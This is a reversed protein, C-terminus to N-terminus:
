RLSFIWILNSLHCYSQSASICTDRSNMCRLDTILEEEENSALNEVIRKRREREGENNPASQDGNLDQYFENLMSASVKGLKQVKDVFDKRMQRTHYSPLKTNVEILANAMNTERAENNVVKWIFNVNAVPVM